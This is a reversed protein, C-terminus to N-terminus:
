KVARVIIANGKQAVVEVRAGEAIHDGRTTVDVLRDDIIAKGAPRLASYAIGQRGVLNKGATAMAGEAHAISSPEPAGLYLASIVPTKPLLKTLVVMLAIAAILTGVLYTTSVALYRADIPARTINPPIAMLVLGAVMLGLGAFGIFGFGPIFAIEVILLVVGAVFILIEWYQAMGSLYRSFILIGFCVIAATAPLGFGPAKFEMYLAILGVLLLISSVAPYNLFRVLEESWATSLTVVKAGKLSYDTLLEDFDKVIFRAFGYKKADEASMTLLQGEKKVVSKQAVHERQAATLADLEEASLYKVAGDDFKVEYVVIEKTVMSEALAVPYGNREAYKHFMGRTPSQEKEGLMQPGEPTDMIPAADGVSALPGVAMERAGMAIMAGASYAKVPIYAVTRPTDVAGITDTIEMAFNLLGGYTDIQFVILSPKFDGAEKIRRRISDYLGGDIFGEVPIVVVTQEGAPQAADPPQIRVPLQAQLPAAQITGGDASKMESAGASSVSAGLIACLIATFLPITLFAASSLKRAPYVV